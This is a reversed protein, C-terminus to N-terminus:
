QHSVRAGVSSWSDRRESERRQSGELRDRVRGPDPLSFGPDLSSDAGPREM